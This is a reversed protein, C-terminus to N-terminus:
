LMRVILLNNEVELIYQFDGVNIWLQVTVGSKM